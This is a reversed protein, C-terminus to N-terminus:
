IHAIPAESKASVTHAPCIRSRPLRREYVTEGYEEIRAADAASLERVSGYENLLSSQAPSLRRDPLLVYIGDYSYIVCDTGSGRKLWDLMDDVCAFVCCMRSCARKIRFRRRRRVTRVSIILLCGSGGPLAEILYSKDRCDLGCERAVKYMLRTLGRRTEEADAASFDLRFSRMEEDILSVLITGESLKDITM